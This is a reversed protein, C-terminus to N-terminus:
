FGESTDLEVPPIDKDISMPIEVHYEKSWKYRLRNESWM